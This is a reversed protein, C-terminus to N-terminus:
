RHSPPPHHHPHTVPPHHGPSPCFIIPHHSPSPLLPHIPPHLSVEYQSVELSTDVRIPYFNTGVQWCSLPEFPAPAQSVLIRSLSM